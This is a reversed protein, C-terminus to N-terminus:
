CAQKTCLSDDITSTCSFQTKLRNRAVPQGKAQKLFSNTQIFNAHKVIFGKLNFQEVHHSTM